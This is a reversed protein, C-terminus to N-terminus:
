RELDDDYNERVQQAEDKARYLADFSNQTQEKDQNKINELLQEVHKEQAPADFGRVINTLDDDTFTTKDPM